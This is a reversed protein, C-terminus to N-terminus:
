HFQMRFRSRIHQDSEVFPYWMVDAAAHRATSLPDHALCLPDEARQSVCARAISYTSSVRARTVCLQHEMHEPLCELERRAGHRAACDPAHHFTDSQGYRRRCCSKLVCVNACGFCATLLLEWPIRQSPCRFSGCMVPVDLSTLEFGAAGDLSGYHADEVGRLHPSGGYESDLYSRMPDSEKALKGIVDLPDMKSRPNSLM